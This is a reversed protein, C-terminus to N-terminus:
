SGEERGIEYLRGHSEASQATVGDIGNTKAVSQMTSNWEM